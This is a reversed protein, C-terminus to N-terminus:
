TWEKSKRDALVTGGAMFETPEFETIWVRISELPAGLSQQAAETIAALLARKQGESRGASMQVQILPM